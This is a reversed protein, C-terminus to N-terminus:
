WLTASGQLVLPEAAPTPPAPVACRSQGRIRQEVTEQKPKEEELDVEVEIGCTRGELSVYEGCTIKTLGWFVELTVSSTPSGWPQSGSTRMRQKKGKYHHVGKREFIIDSLVTPKLHLFFFSSFFFFSAGQLYLMPKLESFRIQSSQPPSHFSIPAIQKLARLLLAEGSLM